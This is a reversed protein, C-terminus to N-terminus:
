NTPPNALPETKVQRVGTFNRSEYPHGEFYFKGKMTDGTVKAEYISRLPELIVNPQPPVVRTPKHPTVTLELKDGKFSVAVDCPCEDQSGVLRGKKDRELTFIRTKQQGQATVWTVLWKGEITTPQQGASTERSNGTQQSALEQFGESANVWVLLPVLGSLAAFIM